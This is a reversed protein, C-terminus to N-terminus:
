LERVSVFEVPIWAGWSDPYCPVGAGPCPEARAALILDVRGSRSLRDLEASTVGAAVVDVCRARGVTSRSALDAIIALTDMGTLLARVPGVVTPFRDSSSHM